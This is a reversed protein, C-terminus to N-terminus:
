SRSRYNSWAAGKANTPVYGTKRVMGHVIEFRDRAMAANVAFVKVYKTYQRHKYLRMHDAASLLGALPCIDILCHKLSRSLHRRVKRSRHLGPGVEKTERM